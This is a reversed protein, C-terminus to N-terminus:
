HMIYIYEQSYEDKKWNRMYKNFFAPNQTMKYVPRRLHNIRDSLSGKERYIQYVMMCPIIMIISFGIIWGLVISWVPYMNGAYTINKYGMIIMILLTLSFIPAFVIMGCKLYFVIYRYACNDSYGIM